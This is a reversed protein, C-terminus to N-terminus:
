DLSPRMHTKATDFRKQLDFKQSPQDTRDVFTRWRKPSAKRPTIRANAHAL